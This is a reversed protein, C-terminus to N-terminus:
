AYSNDTFVPHAKPIFFLDWQWLALDKERWMPEAFDVVRFGLRDMELCLDQFLIPESADLLFLYSEIVVISTQKLVESAGKLISHEFGHTDLKVLYPGPLNAAAIDLSTMPLRRQAKQYPERSAVGGFPDSDDFYCYGPEAGAAALQFRANANATCFVELAERHCDQAEILLYQADPFHRMCVNTWAGNSAGVDIVGRVEHGRKAMRYLARDTSAADFAKWEPTATEVSPPAQPTPCFFRRLRAFM